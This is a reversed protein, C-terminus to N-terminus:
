SEQVRVLAPGVYNVLDSASLSIEGVDQAAMDGALGHFYVALKAATAPDGVHGLWAAVMGTLVDGMGGSAMGPNGTLNLSTAGGPSAILTGAGKLVIYVNKEGAYTRAIEIRNKQVEEVTTGVLRAMEGPHPTLIISGRSRKELLSPSTAVINLADADLVVPLVTKTLVDSVVSRLSPETGLGPGVAIVTAPIREIDNWADGSISGDKTESLPVTMYEPVMSISSICSEPSAVTVLGAGARIAGLGALKAAGCKGKSGGIIVIHGFDGKHSTRPRRPILSRIEERTLLELGDDTEEQILTEPIGIDAVVVEGSHEIGMPSILVMKPAAFTVTLSALICPTESPGSGGVVGTPVDVSVVPLRSLNVDKVIETIPGELGKRLGTGVLADVLLGCRSLIPKWLDWEGLSAVEFVSVGEEALAKFCSLVDGDLEEIRGYLAVDVSKGLLTLQRAIVFGDGGNHGRGCLVGVRDPGSRSFREVIESVVAKGANEMLRLSSISLGETARRDVKKM